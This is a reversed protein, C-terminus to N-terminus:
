FKRVTKEVCDNIENAQRIIRNISKESVGLTRIESELQTPNDSLLILKNDFEIFYNNRQSPTAALFFQYFDFRDDTSLLCKYRITKDEFGLQGYVDISLQEYNSCVCGNRKLVYRNSCSFFCLTCVLILCLRNM